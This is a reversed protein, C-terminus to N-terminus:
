WTSASSRVWSSSAVCFYLFSADVAFDGPSGTAAASAPVAVKRGVPSGSAYVQGQLYTGTINTNGLTVTNSGHGGASAGIVIENTSSSLLSKAKTGIFVSGSAFEVVLTGGSTAYSGAEAGIAVTKDSVLAWDLSNYGISVNLSGTKNNPLALNGIATNYSGYTNANLADAGVSTNGTGTINFTLANEGIATNSFGYTNDYLANIGLATNHNGTMNMLMADVGVATNEVFGKNSIVIGNITASGSVTLTGSPSVVGTLYSLPAVSASVNDQSAFIPM